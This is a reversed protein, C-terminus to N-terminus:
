ESFGEIKAAKLMHAPPPWRPQTPTSSRLSKQWSPPTDEWNRKKSSPEEEKVYGWFDEYNAEPTVKIMESFRSKLKSDTMEAIHEWHWHDPIPETDDSAVDSEKKCESKCLGTDFMM